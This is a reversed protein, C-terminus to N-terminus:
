QGKLRFKLKFQDPPMTSASGSSWEIYYDGVAPRNVVLFPKEVMTKSDDELVLVQRSAEDDWVMQLIKLAKVEATYESM